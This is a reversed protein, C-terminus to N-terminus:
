GFSYESVNIANFKGFVIIGVNKNIQFQMGVIDGKEVFVKKTQIEKTQSYFTLNFRHLM